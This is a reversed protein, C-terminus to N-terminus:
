AWKFKADSHEVGDFVMSKSSIGELTEPLAESEIIVVRQRLFDDLTATEVLQEITLLPDRAFVAEAHAIRDHSWADYPCSRNRFLHGYGCVFFLHRM